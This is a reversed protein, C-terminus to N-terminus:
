TIQVGPIKMNGIGNCLSSQRLNSICTSSKQLTFKLRVYASITKLNVGNGAVNWQGGSVTRPHILLFRRLGEYERYQLFNMFPMYSNV